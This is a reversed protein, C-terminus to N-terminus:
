SDVIKEQVRNVKVEYALDFAEFTDEQLPKGSVRITYNGKEPFTYGINLTKTKEDWNSASVPQSYIENGSQQVLFMCECNAPEFVNEKDKFEFFFLGEQGAIPDDEPQIHMVAGIPDHSELVHASITQATSMAFIIAIILSLFINM